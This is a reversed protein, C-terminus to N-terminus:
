PPADMEFFPMRAAAPADLDIDLLAAGLAGKYLRYDSPTARAIMAARAGLAKARRLWAADGTSRYLRLLAYARGSSGCCLDVANGGLGSAAEAALIALKLFSADATVDYALLWLHILGANGGCWGAHTPSMSQARSGAIVSPWELGADRRRALSALEHLRKIAHTGVGEKTVRAWCLSAYLVGAWGHALGSLRISRQSTLSKKSDDRTWM